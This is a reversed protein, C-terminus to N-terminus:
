KAEDKFLVSRHIRLSDGVRVAAIQKKKIAKYLTKRNMKLIKAAEDVTYFFVKEKEM